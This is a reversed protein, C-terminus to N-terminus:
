YGMIKLAFYPAINFVLTMVKYKSLFEFYQEALTNQNVKFLRAHLGFIIEGFMVIFFTVLILYSMNLVATWGFFLTVQNLDVCCRRNALYGCKAQLLESDYRGIQLHM